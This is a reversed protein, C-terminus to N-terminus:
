IPPGEDSPGAVHPRANPDAEPYPYYAGAPPTAPSYERFRTSSAIWSLHVVGTPGNRQKAIILEGVGVKEQNTDAWDDDGQHYYDERHLMAVVDADQEISGSERLDSIRPRHGERQEPSRNLQSLCVVPVNLERAMAKIGRSINSVELQRSEVRGGSAMLQLYDIFIVKIDHQAVMRRSKARMQLLSLGPSDEVYIPAGLLDDCAGMLARYEEPGLMNRRMKRSDIGSRACLMRQVVQQKSTELSFLGVGFGHMAMHEAINLALATKGMSPRAAIVIMEGRQFGATLDDLEAFGTPLGTLQKGENAELIAMTQKILEALSEIASEQSGQAIEFIRQEAHDLISQAQDPSHYAEYLIDGAAEILRRVMAKERVLRAYHAANAASPVADALEVLYNVGGVADLIARDALSQNLQVIDISAHKDYLEVMADYIAGNAPKYFDEGGKIIFMVDGLMQPELLMSGLLSMEAEIAHPPLKEFLQSLNRWDRGRGRGPPGSVAEVAPQTTVASM